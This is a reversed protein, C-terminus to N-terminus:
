QPAGGLARIQQDSVSLVTSLKHEWLVPQGDTNLIPRGARQAFAIRAQATADDCEVKSILNGLWMKGTTSDRAIFMPDEESQDPPPPPPPAIEGRGDEFIPADRELWDALSMMRLYPIDRREAALDAYADTFQSGGNPLRDPQCHHREHAIHDLYNIHFRGCNAHAWDLADYPVSDIAWAVDREGRNMHLSYMPHAFQKPNALHNAMQQDWDRWGTGVGLLLDAELKAAVCLGVYCRQFEPDLRNFTAMKLLEAITRLNDSGVQGEDYDGQDMGAGRRPDDNPYFVPIKIDSPRM